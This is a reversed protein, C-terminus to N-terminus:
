SSALDREIREQQVRGILTAATKETKRYLTPITWLLYAAVGTVLTRGLEEFAPRLSSKLSRNFFRIAATGDGLRIAQRALYRLQYARARSAHREVFEPAYSATIEAVQEWSGLQKHLQASLGGANLRYFTLPEPIGEICWDTKLSIRLWCEIDESQRLSSDFYRIEDIGGHNGPFAIDNFVAKRIVPASGNGIPNRCFLHSATIGSLKPMQYFNTPVGDADVFASRSFSIGVEQHADLHSVHCQLKDNRWFDDSDLFALYEGRAHHIGTNRAGALGRNLRHRIIRIRSDDFSECIEISNDPSCDDIILLEFDSFSQSLVSQIAQSVFAAVNFVPMVVSVKPM